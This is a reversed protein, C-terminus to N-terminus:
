DLYLTVAPIGVKTRGIDFFPALLTRLKEFSRTRVWVEGGNEDQRWFDFDQETLLRELVTAAGRTADIKLLPTFPPLGLVKREKLEGRWFSGWGKRLSSQWGRGPRRSQVVVTRGDPELGRWASEWILGFACTRADYETSRAEGDADIWGALAAPLEDALALLKRTGVLLAGNPHKQLLETANMKDDFLVVAGRRRFIIEARAAIAEVGPRQGALFGSGCSPCSQPIERASRCRGCYLRGNKDEWRMARGCRPCCVAVGCEDCFIEGAYGRRDLIWLAFKEAELARQTERVLPLSIPLKDKLDAAEFFNVDHLSVFVTRKEIGEGAHIGELNRLAAKSSPMRGGLLLQAGAFRSRSALLSRWHFEPRRHTRWAASSEDDVIVRSLGPLPLFCAAPSGVIFSFGGMRVRQWLEWQKKPAADPWLLGDEKLAGPLLGWFRKAQAVEPFLVLSGVASEQLLEAYAEYRKGDRPQYLYRAAPGGCAPPKTEPLPALEAGDLFKAPLLTRMAMGFSLFWSRGFWEATAALEPALPPKVDLVATVNKIGIGDPRVGEGRAVGVRTRGSSGLPVRVRVGEPVPLESTYSLQTWWPGALAISIVHM